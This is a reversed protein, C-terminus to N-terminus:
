KPKKHSSVINKVYDSDPELGLIAIAKRQSQSLALSNSWDMNSNKKPTSNYSTSSSNVRASRRDRQSKNMKSRSGPRSTQLFLRDEESLERNQSGRGRGGQHGSQLFLKDEETTNQKQSGRGRGGQRNQGYVGRNNKGRGRGRNNDNNLQKPPSKLADTYSSHSSSVTPWEADPLNQNPQSNSSTVVKQTSEKSHVAKHIVPKTIDGPDAPPPSSTDMVDESINQTALDNLTNDNEHYPEENNMLEDRVKMVIQGAVNQGKWEKKELDPSDISIGCAFYMDTTAEYLNLGNTSLLIQKLSDNQKFKSLVGQYLIKVREKKWSEDTKVRKGTAKAYWPNSKKMIKRALYNQNCFTAKTSQYFQEVNAYEIDEIVFSAPFFNSFISKDGKYAIGDSLVKEQKCSKLITPSISKLEDAAYSEEGIIVKNGTVKTEFGLSKAGTAIMKLNSRLAKTDQRLDENVHFKIDQYKVLSKANFIMQRLHTFSLIVVMPRTQKRGVKGIRYVQDLDQNTLIRFNPRKDASESEPHSQLIAFSLLKNLSDKAVSIYDEDSKEPIGSLVLRRDRVETGIDLVEKNVQGLETEQNDLRKIVSKLKKDLDKCVANQIKLQTELSTISSENCEIGISNQATKANCTSIVAATELVKEVLTNHAEEIKKFHQDYVAEKHRTSKDKETLYNLLKDVRDTLRDVKDDLSIPKEEPIMKDKSNAPLKMTKDSVELTEEPLVSSSDELISESPLSLDLRLDTDLLIRKPDDADNLAPSTAQRKPRGEDGM